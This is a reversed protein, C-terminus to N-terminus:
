RIHKITLLKQIIYERRCKIISFYSSTVNECKKDLVDEFNKLSTKFIGFLKLKQRKFISKM